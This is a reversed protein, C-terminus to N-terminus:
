KSRNDKILSNSKQGAKRLKGGSQAALWAAKEAVAPKGVPATILFRSGSGPASQIELRGGILELRGIISLIGFGGPASQLSEPDFGAGSDSVEVQVFDRQHRRMEVEARNVKAHKVINLLLERAAQFLLIRIEETEPEAREDARVEVTLGHKQEVQIGLHVLAKALGAHHLVPPSLEFALSRSTEIAQRLFENLQLATEDMSTACVAKSLTDACFKAAVLLQQLDDHIAEALRKREREEAQTLEAALHRLQATREQVVQELDEASEHYRQESQRLADVAKRSETVDVVSGISHTRGEEDLINRGSDAVIIYYGSKHRIRYQISYDQGQSRAKRLEERVKPLDDKHIQSFWWGEGNLEKGPRYGLVDNIGHIFNARGTAADIDYVMARAAECAIRFRDEAESPISM